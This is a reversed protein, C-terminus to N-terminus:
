LLSIIVAGSRAEGDGCVSLNNLRTNMFHVSLRDDQMQQLRKKVALM